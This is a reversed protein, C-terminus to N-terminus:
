MPLIEAHGISYYHGNNSNRDSKKENEPKIM